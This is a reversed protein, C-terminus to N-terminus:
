NSVAEKFVQYYQNAIKEWSYSSHVYKQIKEANLIAKDRNALFWQLKELLTQVNESKFYVGNEGLVMNEEIDSCIIPVGLSAAELLVMSMGEVTSPFILFISYKMLGFLVSPDEILPHFYVRPGAMSHLKEKYEQVHNDDGIMLLPVDSKLKNVAEVALHAGKTPEIRGAVFIFYNHKQIGLKKLIEEAKPFDPHFETGVGNPIYTVKSGYRDKLIRADRTSVSTVMNSYKIFFYDMLRMFKKAFYGWKARRYAFGHCTGLVKFRLRLLPLVFSVEVNHLNVLDYNGFLLAHITSFVVLTSTRLHKGQIAPIRILKVGDVFSDSSTYRADSYVTFSIDRLTLRKVLAEVAREAGGKAPLGKIGIIAVKM